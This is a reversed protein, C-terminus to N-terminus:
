EYIWIPVPAFTHVYIFTTLFIATATLDTQISRTIEATFTESTVYEGLISFVAYTFM